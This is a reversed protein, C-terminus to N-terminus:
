RFADRARVIADPRNSILGDVGWELLRRADAEADVTWVHVKLGAAHAHRVFRRSVVRLRGVVEPVQYGHYAVRRVPWCAWSRYLARRVEDQCGSCAVGPLAQRAAAASRAGYGAICVRELAGARRVEAAIAEGLQAEDMKMEIIIRTDRYRSLVERLTPIGIGQDRFPFGNGATFLYGADIRALDAAPYSTIPGSANTTRELTRDHHIVPVGDASLHVDFEIGDAGTALGRDFAAITNEPALAAGGRHAFVLPRDQDFFRVNRM